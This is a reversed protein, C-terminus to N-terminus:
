EFNLTSLISFFGSPNLSSLGFLVAFVIFILVVLGIITGTVLDLTQAKKGIKKFLGKM